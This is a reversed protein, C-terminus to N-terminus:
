KAGVRLSVDPTVVYTTVSPSPPSLSQSVSPPDRVRLFHIQPIYVLPLGVMLLSSGFGRFSVEVYSGVLRWGM